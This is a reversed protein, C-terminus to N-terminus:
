SSGQGKSVLGQGSGALLLLLLLLLLLPLLTALLLLAVGPDLAHESDTRLQALVHQVCVQTNTCKCTIMNLVVAGISM